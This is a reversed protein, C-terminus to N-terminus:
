LRDAGVAPVEEFLWSWKGEVSQRLEKSNMNVIPFQDGWAYWTLDNHSTRGAELETAMRAVTAATRAATAVNITINSVKHNRPADLM